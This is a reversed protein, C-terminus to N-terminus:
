INEKKIFKFHPTLYYIIEWGIAISYPVLNNAMNSIYKYIIDNTLFSCVQDGGIYVYRHKNNEESVKLLITNGDFCKKNRAGSFETVICCVSKGIFMQM